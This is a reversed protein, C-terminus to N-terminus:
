NNMSRFDDPPQMHNIKTCSSCRLLCSRDEGREHPLKQVIHHDCKDNHCETDVIKHRDITTNTSM